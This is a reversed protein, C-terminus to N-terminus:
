TQVMSTRFNFMHMASALFKNFSSSWHLVAFVKILSVLKRRRIPAKSRSRCQKSLKLSSTSIESLLVIHRTCATVVLKANNSNDEVIQKVCM